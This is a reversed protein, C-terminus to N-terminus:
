NVYSNKHVPIAQATKVCYNNCHTYQVITKLWHLETNLSLASIYIPKEATNFGVSIGHM